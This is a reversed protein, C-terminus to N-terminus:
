RLILPLFIQYQNTVQKLDFVGGGSTGAYLTTPAAPDIALEEVYTATLGTNITSWNAGGDTSKFVGQGFNMGAYLTTPTASDIVLAEVYPFNEGTNVASWNGGGDTSKFVGGWTGAYLTTPTVPDIALANIPRTVDPRHQGRELERRWGHEQVRRRRHGPM